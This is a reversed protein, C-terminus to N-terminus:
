VKDYNHIGLFFMTYIFKLVKWLKLMWQLGQFTYERSLLLHCYLHFYFNLTSAGPGPRGQLESNLETWKLWETMDLEKHGWPSCCTLSGQGDGVGLAQEFELGDLWHHWGVMENDTMRKEEWRWIKKLMLTKELSDASRMLHGFSQLNLNLILGELSYKEPSIEKLILQNSRRATWSVTLLRRWLQLEFADM